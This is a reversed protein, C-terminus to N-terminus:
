GNKLNVEAGYSVMQEELKDLDDQGARTAELCSSPPHSRGDLKVLAHQTNAANLAAQSFRLADQSNTAGAAKSLLSNVTKLNMM